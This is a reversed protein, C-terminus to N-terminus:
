DASEGHMVTKSMTDVLVDVLETFLLLRMITSGCLNAEKIRGQMDNIYTGPVRRLDRPRVHVHPM